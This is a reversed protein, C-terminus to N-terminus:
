VQSELSSINSLNRFPQTSKQIVGPKEGLSILFNALSRKSLCPYEDRVAITGYFAVTQAIPLIFYPDPMTLDKVWLFGGTDYGPAPLTSMGRQLRFLSFSIPIQVLPVFQKWMKMGANKRLANMESWVRQTEVPDKTRMAQKYREQLPAEINKILKYRANTDASDFYLKLLLTRIIVIVIVTSGWWPTGAYMHVYELLREVMATTGWGYDLGIDRLWGPYQNVAAPLQDLVKDLSAGSPDGGFNTPSAYDPVFEAVPTSAAENSAFRLALHGTLPPFNLQPHLSLIHPRPSSHSPLKSNIAPRNM